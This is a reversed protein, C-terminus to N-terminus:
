RRRRRAAFALAGTGAFMLALSGPEPVTTSGGTLFVGSDSTFSVGTPLQFSVAGTHSYDCQLSGGCSGSLREFIGLDSSAGTLAYIGHFVYHGPDSPSLSYSVWNYIFYTRLTPVNNNPNDAVTANFSGYGLGFNADISADTDPSGTPGGAITGDVGFTVGIDTTTNAGAGAVHFHLLDSLSADTHGAGGPVQLAAYGYTGGMAVGVKGTHLDAGAYANAAASRMPIGFNPNPPYTSSIADSEFASKANGITDTTGLGTAACTQGGNSAPCYLQQTFGPGGVAGFAQTANYGRKYVYGATDSEATTSVLYGAHAPLTAVFAALASALLIATKM